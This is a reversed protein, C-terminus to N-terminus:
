MDGSHIFPILFALELKQALRDTHMRELLVGTGFFLYIHVNPVKLALLLTLVFVLTFPFLHLVSM